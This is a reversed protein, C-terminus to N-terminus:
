KKIVKIVRRNKFIIRSTVVKGGLGTYSQIAGRDGRTSLNVNNESQIASRHADKFNKTKGKQLVQKDYQEVFEHIVKGGQTGGLESLNENFQLIDAVDITELNFNGTHVDSRAYDVKVTATGGSNTVETLERHFEQGNLTMAELDGGNDAPEIRLTGAIMENDEDYTINDFGVRFQGELARNIIAILENGAHQGFDGILSLRISDGNVDINSIPNNAAYGYGSMPYYKEAFRDITGFRGIAADYWRAGYDHWNLGFDKNLEKGNYHYQSERGADDMLWPGEFGLGFPYYHNEQLIDSTVPNNTVDIVNNGNKDTFMLRTNGLHDRIAYEKQWNLTNNVDVNLNFYRGEDHYIAEVRRSGTGTKRYELGGAYDQQYQTSAGVKVTKRLKTGAADYTIEISNGSTYTIVNPLNLYNYTISSIGKYSDATLNGNADYTYGAGGSGPDFGHMRQSFPASETISTLKNTLFSYNYTLDDIEGYNCSSSYYGRRELSTINGRIDYNINENYRNTASASGSSTVDYYTSTELRSLYDYTFSYAQRDRGRTRWALQSINGSKQTTGSMSSINGNSSSFLEDYQLELYFLDNDEPYRVRAPSGPNPLSPSCGTPFAQSSGTHNNSNIQTLWGLQNYEYDVSQWWAWLGSAFNSHLNREILQDRLDYNYEALHESVSNITFYLNKSRGMHDYDRRFRTTLNGTTAGSGPRHTRDEILLNDAWDYTMSMSEATSSGSNLYNNGTTSTIRGHTDYTFTTHLFTSGGDLVRAESRRVKGKYQPATLTVSGDFGDYYNRTLVSTFSFAADPNTPFGSVFGTETPRGYDDYKTGISQSAAARNPDQVFTLLDRNNYKMQIAANMGPLKKKLMLDEGSYEYTYILNTSSATADPPIIMSVRDKLDYVNYTRAPSTGSTNTRETLIVRGRRDTYTTIVRNDPDTVKTEFLTGAAHTVGSGPATVATANSGYTTTTAYWDPPTMSTVRSLPSDEFASLSYEDMNTPPSQYSGDTSNTPSAFPLSQRYVRGYKDYLNHTLVDVKSFSAGNQGKDPHYGIKSEQLLRGLGDFHQVVGQQTLSSGSVATFTTLSKVFSTPNSGDKYQYTYDTVVNGGRATVKELRMLDDYDYTVAQGDIDTITNVLKTNTKYTYNWTFNEYTRSQIVNDATWVYTEKEWENNQFELPYGNSTNIKLVTGVIDWSGAQLVGNEWTREYNEYYRPYPIGSSATADPNGSVDFFSYQLRNGSIMNSGVSVTQEIAPLLMNRATLETKLNSGSLDHIYKLDTQYITGDSNTMTIKTPQIHDSSSYEYDTTTSVGDREEVVRTLYYSSTQPTYDQKIFTPVVISSGIICNIDLDRAKFVTGPFSELTIPNPTNTVSAVASGSENQSESSLLEGDPSRYINPPTPISLIQLAFAVQYNYINRGIGNLHEIVRKYGIHGGNFSGMPTVSYSQIHFYPSVAGTTNFTGTVGYVPESKLVGSSRSTDTAEAYEFTRIVDISSPSTDITGSPSSTVKKIRLGGVPRNYTTPTDFQAYLDFTGRGNIVELTFRYKRNAVFNTSIASLSFTKTEAPTNSAHNFSESGVLTNNEVDWAQIKVSHLPLYQCSYCNSTPFLPDCFTNNSADLYLDFKVNNIQSIDQFYISESQNPASCCDEEFDDCNELYMLEYTGSFTKPYTNAEYEYTTLGGTPYKVSKLTGVSLENPVTERNSGGRTIQQSGNILTTTPINYVEDQNLTSGNYYGWHDIAKTLISPLFKSGNLNNTGLYEFEYPTVLANTSTCEVQQVQDLKLRYKEPAPSDNEYHSYDLKWRYCYSGSSIKIYNLRYATNTAAAIPVINTFTNELDIRATTHPIFDITQTGTSTTIQSLRRGNVSNENYRTKGDSYLRGNINEMNPPSPPGFGTTDTTCTFERRTFTASALSKYGYNEEVYSLNIFHKKDASEIRVLYWSSEVSLPTPGTVPGTFSSEIGQRATSGEQNGFIYRTGDPATIIFRIFRNASYTWSIKLDQKPMLFAKAPTSTPDILFKGTYGGVNFSFLDPEGDVIGRAVDEVMGDNNYDLSAGDNYYGGNEDPKGLVTRTIVGGANLSWGAGVWSAPEGMRIGGAHYSLSIPLSLKGETVTYIPVSINPVGTNYSVPIDGYAGLAAANPAAMVVDQLINNTPQAITQLSLLFSLGIIYFIYKKM